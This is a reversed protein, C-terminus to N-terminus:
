KGFMARRVNAAGFHRNMAAFVNYLTIFAILMIQTAWVYPWSIEEAFNDLATGFDGYKLWLPIFEEMIRFLLVLITYLLTKWLVEYVLPQASFKKSISLSDM